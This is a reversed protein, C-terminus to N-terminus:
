TRREAAELAVAHCKFECASIVVRIHNRVTKWRKVEHQMALGKGEAFQIERDVIELNISHDADYCPIFRVCAYCAIPAYSCAVERGCVATTEIRGTALDESDIRRELPIPDLKSAFAKFVPFRNEFEPKLSDSLEDILGDFVIDVYEKCTRDTAHKLVAQITPASCGLQALQTGITHRLGVCTFQRQTLRRITKLYAVQFAGSALMGGHANAGPSRWTGDCRLNRAPFLPLSGVEGNPALHGYITVM